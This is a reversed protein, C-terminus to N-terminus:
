AIMRLEEATLVIVESKVLVDLKQVVLFLNDGSLSNKYIANKYTDVSVGLLTAWGSCSLNYREKLSKLLNITKGKM